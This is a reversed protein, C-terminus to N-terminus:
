TKKQSKQFAGELNSVLKKRHEPKSLYFALDPKLPGKGLTAWNGMTKDLKLLAKQVAPLEGGDLILKKLADIDRKTTAAQIFRAAVRQAQETSM